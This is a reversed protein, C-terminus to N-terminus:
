PLYGERPVSYGPVDVLGPQQVRDPNFVPNLALIQAQQNRKIQVMERRVVRSLEMMEFQLQKESDAIRKQLVEISRRVQDDIRQEEETLNSGFNGGRLKEM